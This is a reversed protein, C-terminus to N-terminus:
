GPSDINSDVRRVNVKHCKYFMLQVSDLIFDSRKMSTELYEQYRSRLSESREDDVKNVDNYSTLKISDSRSHMVCEEEAEKLYIFNTAITVQIKWTDSNQFDVIINRMYPKIKNLYEDLSLNGNQDGNSEYEIYNNKWFNSVRKPKYYDEEQELLKKNDRIM